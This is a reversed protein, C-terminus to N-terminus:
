RPHVYLIVTRSDGGPLSSLHFAPGAALLLLTGPYSPVSFRIDLIAVTRDM